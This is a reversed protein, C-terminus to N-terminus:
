YNTNYKNSFFIKNGNLKIEGKKELLNIIRYFSARSIGLSNAIESKNQYLIIENNNSDKRKSELFYKIRSEINDQSFVDIKESLFYIRNNIYELYNSLILDNEHFLQKVIDRQIFVCEMDELVEIYSLCKNQKSFLSGLGFVDGIYFRKLLISQGNSAYKKADVVGNLIICMYKNNWFSEGLVDNKYYKKVSWPKDKLLDILEQEKLGKFICSNILVQYM